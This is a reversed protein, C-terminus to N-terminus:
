AFILDDLQKGFALATLFYGHEEIDAYLGDLSVPGVDHAFEFQM